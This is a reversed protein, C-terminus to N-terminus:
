FVIRKKKKVYVLDVRFNGWECLVYDSIFDEFM